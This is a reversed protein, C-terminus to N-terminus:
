TAGLTSSVAPEGQHQTTLEVAGVPVRTDAPRSLAVLAYPERSPDGSGLPEQIQRSAADVVAAGSLVQFARAVVVQGPISLRVREPELQPEGLRVRLSDLDLRQSGGPAPSPGLRLPRLRSALDEDGEITAVDGLVIDDARVVAE